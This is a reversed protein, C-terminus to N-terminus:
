VTDEKVLDREIAEKETFKEKYRVELKRINTELLDMFDIDWELCLERIRSIVVYLDSAIDEFDLPKGYFIHKKVIDVSHSIRMFLIRLTISSPTSCHTVAGTFLWGADYTTSVGIGGLCVDIAQAVYWMVDGLEKKRNDKGQADFVEMYEGAMGLVAHLLRATRVNTMRAIVPESIPAETRLVKTIYEQGTM